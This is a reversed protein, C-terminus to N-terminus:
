RTPTTHQMGGLIAPPLSFTRGESSHADMVSCLGGGASPALCPLCGFGGQNDGGGKTAERGELERPEDAEMLAMAAPCLATWGDDDNMLECEDNCVHKKILCCCLYMCFSSMGWVFM